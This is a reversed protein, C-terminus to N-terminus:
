SKNFNYWEPIKFKHKLELQGNSKINFIYFIDENVKYIQIYFADPKQDLHSLQANERYPPDVPIIYNCTNEITKINKEKNKIFNIALLSACQECVYIGGYKNKIKNLFGIFKESLNICSELFGPLSITIAIVALIVPWDAGRGIDTEKIEFDNSFDLLDKKIEKIVDKQKIKENDYSIDPIIIEM